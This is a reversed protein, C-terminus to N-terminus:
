TMIIGGYVNDAINNNNNNISLVASDSPAMCYNKRASPGYNAWWQVSM